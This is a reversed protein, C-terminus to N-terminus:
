RLHVQGLALTGSQTVGEVFELAYGADTGDTEGLGVNDAMGEDLADNIRVVFGFVIFLLTYM